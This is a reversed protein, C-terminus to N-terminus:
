GLRAILRSVRTFLRDDGDRTDDPRVRGAGGEGPGEPGVRVVRKLDLAAAVGEPGPEPAFRLVADMHAGAPILDRNLRRRLHQRGAEGDQSAGAPPEMMLTLLGADNAAKAAAMAGSRWVLGVAGHAKLLSEWEFVVAGRGLVAPVWAQAREFDAPVGIDIFPRDYARGGLRGAAALVPYVDREISVARGPPILELVRRSLVGVGGNILGPGPEAAGEAFGAILEGQLTAAGYRSVDEVRRLALAGDASAAALALDWLNIDFLSDGNLLFFRERLHDKAFRLAGGTGLPQPEVLVRANAHSAVASAVKDGQFGALLLVEEVQHRALEGLLRELFPRGAVALLPKPTQETLRGLRTGLGGVLIVAQEIM